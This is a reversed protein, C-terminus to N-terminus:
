SAAAREGVVRVDVAQPLQRAVRQREDETAVFVVVGRLRQAIEPTIRGAVPCIVGQVRRQGMLRLPTGMAWFADPEGAEVAQELERSLEQRAPLVAGAMREAWARANAAHKAEAEEQLEQQREHELQALRQAEARQLYQPATWALHAQGYSSWTTFSRGEGISRSPRLDGSALRGELLLGVVRALQQAVPEWQGHGPCVEPGAGRHMARWVNSTNYLSRDCNRRDACFVPEFRWLGYRAVLTGGEDPEVVLYPAGGLWPRIRDTVWCVEVASAAYNESRRRIEDATIAALQVELAIRRRGDPSTALLDARWPSVGEGPAELEASWGAARVLAALASKLLRHEVSEYALDCEDPRRVHAFFPTGLKSVKAAMAGGCARCTLAARPKARHLDSWRLGVGLDAATADLLGRDPHLCTLPVGAM